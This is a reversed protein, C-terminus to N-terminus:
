SRSLRRELVAGFRSIAFCCLWFFSAAFFYGTTRINEGMWQPDSSASQVMGLLDHLGIILLVTTEKFLGIFNSVFQPMAVKFAQPLIVQQATAWYGLGLAASAEYQGAPISELAGRVAEALFCSLVIALALVARLLLDVEVGAPMFLPFLIVAVFLVVVAPISRWFEIWAACLASVVPASSRRGLALLVGAPFAAAFVAGSVVLNLFFGGWYRTEVLPLVAGGIFLYLAVLPYVTLLAGRLRTRFRWKPFLVGLALLLGLALALDIRWRETAPYLGYLFQDLRAWVFPWCAAGRDTCSAASTGTWQANVVLWDFLPAAARFVLYILVVTLASDFWNWFLNRRAWALLGPGAGTRRAVPRSGAM